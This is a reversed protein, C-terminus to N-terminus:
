ATGLGPVLGADGTNGPLNKVVVGRLHDGVRLKQIIGPHQLGFSHRYIYSNEHTEHPKWELSPLSLLLSVCYNFLHM